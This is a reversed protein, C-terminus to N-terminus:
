PTGGSSPDSSQDFLVKSVYSFLARQHNPSLQIKRLIKSKERNWVTLLVDADIIEFEVVFEPNNRLWDRVWVITLLDIPRPAEVENESIREAPSPV